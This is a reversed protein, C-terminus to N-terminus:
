PAYTIIADLSKSYYGAGVNLFTRTIKDTTASLHQNLAHIRESRPLDAFQELKDGLVDDLLQTVAYLKKEKERLLAEKGQVEVIYAMILVPLFVMFVALFIMKNRLTHPFLACLATIIKPPFPPNTKNFVISIGSRIM